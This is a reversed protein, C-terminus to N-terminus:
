VFDADNSRRHPRIMAAASVDNPSANVEEAPADTDSSATVVVSEVPSELASLASSAVLHSTIEAVSARSPSAFATACSSFFATLRRSLTTASRPRTGIPSFSSRVSFMTVLSRRIM